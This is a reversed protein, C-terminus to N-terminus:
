SANGAETLSGAPARKKRTATEAKPADEGNESPEEGKFRKVMEEKDQRLYAALLSAILDIELEEGGDEADDKADAHEDMFSSAAAANPFDRAHYKRTAGFFLATKIRSGAQGIRQLIEGEEMNLMDEVAIRGSNTFKLVYHKGDFEYSVEGRHPNAM